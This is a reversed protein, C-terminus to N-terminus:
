AMGPLKFMYRVGPAGSMAMSREFLVVDHEIILSPKPSRAHGRLRAKPRLM